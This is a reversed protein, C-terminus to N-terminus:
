GLKSLAAGVLYSIVAERIVAGVPLGSRNASERL